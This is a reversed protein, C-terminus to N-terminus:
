PCVSVLFDLLVLVRAIDVLVAKQPVLDKNSKTHTRKSDACTRIATQKLRFRDQREAGEGM